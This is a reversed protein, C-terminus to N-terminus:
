TRLILKKMLRFTKHKGYRKYYDSIDKPRNAPTAIFPVRHKAALISNALMGAEDNDMFLIVYKFRHKLGTIVSSVVDTAKGRDGTGYMEGNFAIAHFGM